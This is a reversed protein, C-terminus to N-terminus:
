TIFPTLGTTQAWAAVALQAYVSKQFETTEIQANFDPEVLLAGNEMLSGMSVDSSDVSGNTFIAEAFDNYTKLTADHIQSYATTLNGPTAPPAGLATGAFGLAGGSIGGILAGALATEDGLGVLGAVLGLIGAVGSIIEQDNFTSTQSPFFDNTAQAINLANLANEFSTALNNMIQRCITLYYKPTSMLADNSVHDLSTFSTLIEWGAAYMGPCGGSVIAPGNGCDSDEIGCNLNAGSPGSFFISAFNDFRGQAQERVATNFTFERSLTSSALDGQAATWRDQQSLTTGTISSNCQINEFSTDVVGGNAGGEIIAGATIVPLASAHPLITLLLLSSPAVIFRLM